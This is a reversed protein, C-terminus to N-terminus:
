QVRQGLEISLFLRVLNKIDSKNFYIFIYEMWALLQNIDGFLDRESLKMVAM